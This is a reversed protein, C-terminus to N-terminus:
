TLLLRQYFVPPISSYLILTSYSEGGLKGDSGICSYYLLLVPCPAPFSALYSTKQHQLYRPTIPSIQMITGIQHQLTTMCDVQVHSSLKDCRTSNPQYGALWKRHVSVRSFVKLYRTSLQTQSHLSFFPQMGVYALSTHLLKKIRQQRDGSVLLPLSPFVDLQIQGESVCSEVRQISADSMMGLNCTTLTTWQWRQLSRWSLMRGQIRRKQYQSSM